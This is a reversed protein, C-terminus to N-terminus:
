VDTGVFMWMVTSNVMQDHAVRDRSSAMTVQIIDCLENNVRLGGM